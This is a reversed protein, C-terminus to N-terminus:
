HIEMEMTTIKVYLPEVTRVLITEINELVVYQNVYVLALRSMILMVHVLVM